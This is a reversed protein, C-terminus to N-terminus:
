NTYLVNVHSWKFPPPNRNVIQFQSVSIYFASSFEIVEAATVKTLLLEKCKHTLGVVHKEKGEFFMLHAQSDRVNWM